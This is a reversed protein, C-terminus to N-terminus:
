LGKNSVLNKDSSRATAGTLAVVIFRVPPESREFAELTAQSVMGRAAAHHFAREDADTQVDGPSSQPCKRVVLDIKSVRGM